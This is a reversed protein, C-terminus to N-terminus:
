EGWETRRESGGGAVCRVGIAFDFYRGERANRFITTTQELARPSNVAGGRVVRLASDQDMQGERSIWEAVNGALNLVGYPSQGCPLASVGAVWIFGDEEGEANACHDDPNVGWPFLRRPHPNPAGGVQLGGRAAKAWELDSPLRKGMFRCFAEAEAANISTVPMEPDGAHALVGVTPYSPAPYGTLPELAAFLRFVNNSAEMRDIFYAPLDVAREPEVYDPFRTQPEGPGGYIFPGGPIEVMDAATARCTPIDIAVRPTGASRDAYGPLSQVRIWSPACREGARGRGDVRLFAAGGPAEVRYVQENVPGGGASASRVLAAPIPAGPHHVDGTKVGHLRFSLGPLETVKAPIATGGQWDFPRIVLDIRGLNGGALRLAEAQEEAAIKQRRFAAAAALSGIILASAAIVGGFMRIRDRRRLADQRREGEALFSEVRAPLKVGLQRTRHRAATLDDSSWVEEPRRGRREWLSAAEELEGMFRREETSEDLWRALRSWGQILAEHAVEYEAEGEVERASVLRGRVLAEVAARAAADEGCLDSAARRARTGEATVLRSLVRRAAARDAAPMRAMVEDAHRSLAGTVGGIAALAGASITKAAADRAEWLEGLAFQLLPLGGAASVASGVLDEVMEPPDFRMGVQAAPGVVAERIAEPGMPLLVYMARAVEEGIEPLAAARTVYDGRVTGLLRIGAAISTLHAAAEGFAAVEEPEAVTILEELQDVFFVVGRERGLARRVERGLSRPDDRVAALLAEEDLGLAAAASVLASLPRRGPVLTVVTTARGDVLAGDTVRPLVGARCLSSKGVGSDGAVVVISDVRMRDVVARIESKRGFFLARHEAEFPALGRYPNGEAAAARPRDDSIASLVDLLEDASACRRDPDRELCRAIVADFRADVDPARDRIPPPEVDIWADRDASEPVTDRPATGTCLEYLVAGLAYVDTRKTAPSGRLAEPAMYNPTGVISGAGTLAAPRPGSAEASPAEDEAEPDVEAIEHVLKALGFDLLKVEEDETLMVNAPKIDRHLVGHRHAASVGRALGVGISLARAWPVPKEIEALSRGRVLETVMYLRGDAEGISHVTVVNPHSIRAIARAELRFRQRAAESPLTAAIFKVAVNRDLLTDEGLYIM